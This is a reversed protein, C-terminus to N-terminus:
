KAGGTRFQITKVLRKASSIVGKETGIDPIKKRLLSLSIRERNTERMIEMMQEHTFYPQILPPVFPSCHVGSVYDPNVWHKSWSFGKPMFGKEFAFKEVYTGPYINVINGVIETTRYLNKRIFKYTMFADKMTENPLGYLFFMNTHMDLSKMNDLVKEVQLLSINKNIQKMIRPSASELGFSAKYGGASKLMNLFDRNLMDARTRCNWTIGLNREKLERCLEIIHTKDQALNIDFFKIGEIGYESNLFEIEDVVSKVTRKGHGPGWMAGNVCFTCGSTCGRSTVLQLAKMDHDFKIKYKSVDILSYDIKSEDLNELREREPNNVIKGAFRFSIGKIDRFYTEGKLIYKTLELLTQEAEGRIIFDIEPINKLTDEPTFTAHTGAYIITIGPNVHKIEEAIRFCEFRTGSSKFMIDELHIISPNYKSVLQSVSPNEIAYDIIKVSIGKRKMYSAVSAIGLPPCQGYNGHKNVPNIFLIDVM